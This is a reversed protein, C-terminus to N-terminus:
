NRGRERLPEGGKWRLLLLLSKANNSFIRKEQEREHASHPSENGGGCVCAPGLIAGVLCYGGAKPKITYTCTCAAFDVM